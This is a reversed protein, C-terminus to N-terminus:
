TQNCAPKLVCAITYTNNYVTYLVPKMSMYMNIIYQLHILKIKINIHDYNIIQSELYAIAVIVYHLSFNVSCRCLDNCTCVPRESGTNAIEEISFPCTMIVTVFM